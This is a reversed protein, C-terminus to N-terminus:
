QSWWSAITVVAPVPVIEPIMGNVYNDEIVTGNGANAVYYQFFGTANATTGLAGGWFVGRPAGTLDIPGLGAGHEGVQEFLNGPMQATVGLQVVRNGAADAVLVAATFAYLVSVGIGNPAYQLGTPLGLGTVSNVIANPAFNRASGARVSPEGSTGGGTIFLDVTGGITSIFCFYRGTNVIPAVPTWELDTAVGPLNLGGRDPVIAASQSLNKLETFDVTAEGTNGVGLILSDSFYANPGWAGPLETVDCPGPSVGTLVTGIVPPGPPSSATAKQHPFMKAFDAEEILRPGGQALITALSPAGNTLDVWTVQGIDYVTVTNASTNSVFLRGVGLRATIAMGGPSPTKFRGVAKMQFSDIVTVEGAGLSGSAAYVMAHYFLGAGTGMGDCDPSFFASYTRTDVKLDVIDPVPVRVIKKAAGDGVTVVSNRPRAPNPGPLYPWFSPDGDIVGVGITDGFFVATLTGPAYVPPPATRVIFTFSTNPSGARLPNLATDRVGAGQTALSVTIAQGLPLGRNGKTPTFGNGSCVIPSILMNLPPGDLEPRFVVDCGNRPSTGSTGPNGGQDLQLATFNNGPGNGGDTYWTGPVTTPGAAGAPQFSVTIAGVGLSSALITESMTIRIDTHPDVERAGNPPSSSVVVPGLGDAEVRFFFFYEMGKFGDGDAGRAGKQVIVSYQGAPLPANASLGAPRLILTDNEVRTTTPITAAPVLVNTGPPNVGAVAPQAPDFPGQSPDFYFLRVNRSGQPDGPDTNIVSTLDLSTSFVITVAGPTMLTPNNLANFGDASDETDVQQGNGPSTSLVVLDGFDDDPNGSAGGSCGVALLAAVMVGAKRM